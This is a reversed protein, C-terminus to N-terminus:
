AKFQAATTHPQITYEKINHSSLHQSVADNDTKLAGYVAAEVSELRGVDDCLDQKSYRCCVRTLVFAFCFCFLLM